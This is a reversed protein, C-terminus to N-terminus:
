DEQGSVLGREDLPDLVGSFLPPPKPSVPLGPPTRLYGVTPPPPGPSGLLAVVKEQTRLVTWAPVITGRTIFHGTHSLLGM